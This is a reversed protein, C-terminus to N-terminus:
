DGREACAAPRILARADVKRLEALYKRHAAIVKGAQYQHDCIPMEMVKHTTGRRHGCAPCIDSVNIEEAQGLSYPGARPRDPVRNSVNGNEM